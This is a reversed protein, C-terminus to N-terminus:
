KPSAKAAAVAEAHQLAALEQFWEVLEPDGLEEFVQDWGGTGLLRGGPVAGSARLQLAMQQLVRLLALAAAPTVADTKLVAALPIGRAKDVEDADLRDPDAGKLPPGVCYRLLLKGAELDGAEVHKVLALAVRRVGEEGVAELLQARLAAMRRANPNGCAAKNGRTFRGGADHGDAPARGAEGNSV